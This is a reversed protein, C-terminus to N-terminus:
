IIFIVSLFLLIDLPPWSTFEEAEHVLAHGVSVGVPLEAVKPGVGDDEDEGGGDLGVAVLVDGADHAAEDLVDVGEVEALHAEDELGDEELIGDELEDEVM